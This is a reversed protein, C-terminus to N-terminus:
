DLRIRLYCEDVRPGVHDTTIFCGQLEAWFLSGILRAQLQALALNIRAALTRNRPFEDSGKVCGQENEASPPYSFASM